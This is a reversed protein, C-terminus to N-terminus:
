HQCRPCYFSSRGGQTIQRIPQGCAKCPKGTRGYVACEIQFYGSEGDSNAFDRLSSGGAAIADALTQRIHQALNRYRKLSISKAPRLPSIGARFLSEAAYINGVGVLTHADMLVQKIPASRHRTAQHLWEGTFQDSFPELGLSDLLPHSPAPGPIWDLIGFRRPDRYRIIVPGAVLDFHEHAQPPTDQAVARVSGSMGLHLLLWGGGRDADCDLLLYKGRRVIQRVTLGPLTQPLHPPIPQRLRPFRITVQTLPRGQLHGMLGRRTVEVEPLEPM